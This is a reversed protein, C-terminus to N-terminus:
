EIPKNILKKVFESMGLSSDLIAVEDSNIIDMYDEIGFLKLLISSMYELLDTYGMLDYLYAAFSLLVYDFDKSRAISKKVTELAEEYNGKKICTSIKTIAIDRKFNKFYKQRKMYFVIPYDVSGISYFSSTNNKLTYKIVFEEHQNNAVITKVLSDENQEKILENIKDVLLDDSEQTEYSVKKNVYLERNYVFRMYDVNIDEVTGMYEFTHLLAEAAAYNRKNLAIGFLRKLYLSDIVKHGYTVDSLLNLLDGRYEPMLGYVDVMCILYNNYSVGGITKLYEKIKDKVADYNELNLHYDINDCTDYFYCGLDGKFHNVRNIQNLKKAKKLLAELVIDNGCLGLAKEYDAKYIADCLIDSHKKNSEIIVGDLLDYIDRLLYMALEENSSLHKKSNLYDYLDNYREETIMKKERRAIEKLLRYIVYEQPESNGRKILRNVLGYAAIYNQRLISDRIRNNLDRDDFRFDKSNIRLDAIELNDLESFLDEPLEVINNMLLAYTYFDNKYNQTYRLKLLWDRAVEYDSQSIYWVFIKFALKPNNKIKYAEEYLKAAEERNGADFAKEGNKVLEEYDLTNEAM